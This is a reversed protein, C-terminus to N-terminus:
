TPKIIEIWVSQNMTVQAENIKGGRVTGERVEGQDTTLKYRTGDSLPTHTGLRTRFPDNVTLVLDRKPIANTMVAAVARPAQPSAPPPAAKLTSAGSSSARQKRQPKLLVDRASCLRGLFDGFANPTDYVVLAGNRLAVVLEHLLEDDSIRMLDFGLSSQRLLNRLQCMQFSDNVKVFWLLQEETVHQSWCYYEFSGYEPIQSM